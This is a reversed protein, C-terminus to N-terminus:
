RGRRRDLQAHVKPCDRLYAMYEAFYGPDLNRLEERLAILVDFDTSPSLEELRDVLERVNTRPSRPARTRRELVELPVTVPKGEIKKLAGGIVGGLEGSCDNVRAAELARRADDGGIEGLAWCAPTAVEVADHLALRALLSLDKRRGLKGLAWAAQKLTRTDTNIEAIRLVNDALNRHARDGIEFIAQLQENYGFDLLTSLEEDSKRPGKM